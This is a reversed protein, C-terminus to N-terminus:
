VGLPESKTMELTVKDGVSLGMDRYEHMDLKIQTLGSTGPNAMGSFVKNLDKMMDNINTFGMVKPGGLQSQPNDMGEKFDKASSLSVIVHPAGEPSGDISQVVFEKKMAQQCERPINPNSIYETMSIDDVSSDIIHHTNAIRIDSDLYKSVQMEELDHIEFRYM